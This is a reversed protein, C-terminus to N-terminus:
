DNRLDEGGLAENLVEVIALQEEWTQRKQEFSPMFERPKYPRGRKKPDRATEAVTSAVIGARLDGREEGWPEISYYAMWESLELSSARGLLEGVTM